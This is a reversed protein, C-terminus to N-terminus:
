KNLDILGEPLDLYLIKKRKDIKVIFDEVFPILVESGNHDVQLLLQETSEILDNIKGVTGATKDVITYDTLKHEFLQDPRTVPRDADAIFVSYGILQQATEPTNYDQLWIRLKGSGSGSQQEVFFPVLGGDIEVFLTKLDAFAEASHRSISITLQGTKRNFKTISGLLLCTEKNM